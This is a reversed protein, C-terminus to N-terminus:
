TTKRRIAAWLAILIFIQFLLFLGANFTWFMIQQFMSETNEPTNVVRAFMFIFLTGSYYIIVATNVMSLAFNGPISFDTKGFSRFFYTVAYGIMFLQVLTKANSNFGFVSEVFLSNLVMLVVIGSVFWWFYQRFQLWDSFVSRYFLSLAVFEFVTYIHLLPMNNFGSPLFLLLLETCLDIGIFIGLMKLEVPMKKWGLVILLANITLTLLGADALHNWWDHLIDDTM